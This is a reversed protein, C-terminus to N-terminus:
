EGLLKNNPAIIDVCEFSMIPSNNTENNNLFINTLIQINKMNVVFIDNKSLFSGSCLLFLIKHDM